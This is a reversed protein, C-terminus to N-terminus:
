AYQLVEALCLLVLCDRVVDQFCNM